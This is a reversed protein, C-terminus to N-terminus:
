LIEVDAILEVPLPHVSMMPQPQSGISGHTEQVLALSLLSDPHHDELHPAVMIGPGVVAAWPDLAVVAGWQDLTVVRGHDVAELHGHDVTEEQAEVMQGVPDVIEELPDLGTTEVQAPAEEM